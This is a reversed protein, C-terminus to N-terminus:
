RHNIIEGYRDSERGTCFDFRDGNLLSFAPGDPNLAGPLMTVVDPSLLNAAVVSVLGGFGPRKHTTVIHL